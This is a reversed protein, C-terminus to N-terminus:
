GCPGPCTTFIFDAVWVHGNLAARQFAQGHQDVLEFAPVEGLVPLPKELNCGVLLFAVPLLYRM